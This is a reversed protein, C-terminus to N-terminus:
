EHVGTWVAAVPRKRFLNRLTAALACHFTLTPSFQARPSLWWLGAECDLLILNCDPHAGLWRQARVRSRTQWVGGLGLQSAASTALELLM